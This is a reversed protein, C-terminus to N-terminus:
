KKYTVAYNTYIKVIHTVIIKNQLYAKSVKLEDFINRYVCENNKQKLLM